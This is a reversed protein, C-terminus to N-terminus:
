GHAGPRRPARAWAELAEVHAETLGVAPDTTILRTPGSRDQAWRETREDHGDDVWALAREPGAHADIADLKWHRTSAAFTLHPYPDGTLGLLRPLHEPARDEWGTCWVSEFTASLRTLLGGAQSGIWHPLGDVITFTGPPPRDAPFGFLSLVGDM